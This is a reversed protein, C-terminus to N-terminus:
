IYSFIHSIVDVTWGNGITKKRQNDSVGEINTYGEPLTQLREMELLSLHRINYRGDELKSEYCGDLKGNKVEHVGDDCKEFMLTACTSTIPSGGATLTRAKELVRSTNYANFREPIYGYKEQMVPLAKQVTKTYAVDRRDAHSDLIDDLVIGKDKPMEVHPINTWYLRPRNQASVFSSNIPIPEVGVNKSILDAWKKDMRVNELLFYKPNIESLLRVYEWFLYSQGIFEAGNEKLKLYRELTYVEEEKSRMGIKTGIFSLSTCPTGGILMDIKPTSILGKESSFSFTGDNNDIYYLKAIDGLQITDPYHHQTIAIAYKDIESAYYKRVDVGARELAVRGCSIGDCVSLVNM